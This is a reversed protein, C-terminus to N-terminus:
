EGLTSVPDGLVDALYLMQILVILTVALPTAMLVGIAGALIGMIVQASILVAPPISVAREQILPTILYSELFQVAGYVVLVYLVKTPSEALAVLAAPIISAIPGVYPVFSFLAAILGLVFSLSVGAVRLGVATLIGVIAMSAIRGVLWWRLAHGLARIVDRGRDRRSPPLLRLAGDIYVMPTAAAYLGIVLVVLGSILAGMVNTIGGAVLSLFSMGQESSPSGALLSRGWEYQNITSRIREIADPIREQLQGIQEGIRPGAFWGSAVFFTVIFAVVLGLCWGRALGTRVHLQTTLGEFFVALLTGAFILLLVSAVQRLVLISLTLALLLGGAILARRTYPHLNTDM